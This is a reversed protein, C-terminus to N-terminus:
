KTAKVKKYEGANVDIVHFLLADRAIGVSAKYTYTKGKKSLDQGKALGKLLSAKLEIPAADAPRKKAAITWVLDTISNLLKMIGQRQILAKENASKKKPADFKEEISIKFQKTKPDYQGAKILNAKVKEFIPLVTARQVFFESLEARKKLKKRLKSTIRLKIAARFSDDAVQYKGARQAADGRNMLLEALNSNALANKKNLELAKRYFAEAKKVDAGLLNNGQMVYNQELAPMLIRSFSKKYEENELIKNLMKEQEIVNGQKGYVDAIGWLGNYNDPALELLAKFKKLALDYQSAKVAQRAEKLTQKEVDEECGLQLGAIIIALLPLHTILRM